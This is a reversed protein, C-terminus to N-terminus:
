FEAGRKNNRSQHASIPSRFLFYFIFCDSGCIVFVTELNFFINQVGFM